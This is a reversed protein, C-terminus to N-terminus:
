RNIRINEGDEWDKYENTYYLYGSSAPAQYTGPIEAKLDFYLEHTESPKLERYYIVLYNKIVEYFDIKHKDMIEKLQWPQLSLGSPIGVLAVTMPLGESTKNTLNVTLRVTEGVNTTKTSLSTKLNIKCNSSSEPTLSNWTVDFSYPLPTSTELYRLEINNEGDKLLTELNEILIKGKTGKEYAYCAAKKGNIMIKIKGSESTQKSIEAYKKIAKLALITAQTSGFGGNSRSSVLYNVTNTIQKWDVNTSKMLAIAYLSVTEITLSKGYSRTISHDIKINDWLKDRSLAALKELLMMGDSNKKYNFSANALLALRYPDNSSIAEDLAIKYEKEVKDLGAESIAYVIYANNVADSARGFSDLARSNRKFGGKGDRTGLLMNLTRQIMQNDVGNYVNRMDTFEMLGYATLGEHAPAAGFWEYGKESTEFSTLRKYGMDILKSAKRVVAHDQSNTENLYQLVMINPYTSSSTQEFCGYPENLISEVGSMLDTLLDPFASFTAKISGTVPKNIVFSFRKENEKGSVSFITPFGKSQVDIAQIFADSYKEGKFSIKITDKGAISKVFIPILLTKSTNPEITVSEMANGISLLCKPLRIDLKGTILNNTNNKIILPMNVTDCFTLYSPFKAALSFPMQTFYKKEERGVNGNIGIGETIARFTTIEDSNYFEVTAQGNNNTNINPNWYITSRFDDRIEPTEEKDYVPYYFEKTVSLQRPTILLGTYKAKFPMKISGNSGMRKKTTISIVGNSGRSGYIATASADKLIEVSEINQLVTYQLPSSYGAINPDFIVGDIVYLPNSNNTGSVGRIRIQAAAGPEANSNIISVGAARGQLAQNIDAPINSLNEGKVSVVAGTLDSKKQTGYGIVVVEDLKKVDEILVVNNNDDKIPNNEAEANLGKVPKERKERIAVIKDKKEGPQIAQVKIIEPIVLGQQVTSNQNNTVENLQDVQIILDAPNIKEACALLQLPSSADADFFKFIGNPGTTVRLSRKRNQLEVITVEAKVPQGTNKNLIRGNICGIKEAFFSTKYNVDVIDTWKYRRWGQTLLLYDLAQEAKPEDTKFYFDPEEIKGKLDSGALLWSTINHQKDDAFTYLQDNVVSLSLNASIPLSDGDFTRIHLKVKERPGYKEQDFKLIIKLRKNYNFFVLRECRPIENYDFLTVTGIGAPFKDASFNIENIGLAANTSKSFVISNGCQVILHVTEAIPSNFVVNYKNNVKTVKLSYGKTVPDPLEFPKSIGPKTVMAYYHRGPQPLLEFVGMGLKYSNFDTIKTLTEDFIYGQIDAPKGFENLAKFAMCCRVGEVMNGGEPFFQLDIKNLIIPISRSIAEVSGEHVVKMNVLGDNTSLDQPLRFLVIVKGKSDTTLDLTQYKKGGLSIDAIISKFAMPLNELTEIKLEGKVTDGRGYSKKGFEFKSLLRPYIVPQVQIEKEFIYDDGFNRMWNTYAKVKYIGGSASEGIPFNGFCIGQIVQLTLKQEVNGKPNLLEVYVVDSNKCPKNTLGETLYVKFWVNEGPKYFPKDIHLYIKEWPKHTFYNSLLEKLRATFPDDGNSLRNFGFMAITAVVLAIIFTYKKANM